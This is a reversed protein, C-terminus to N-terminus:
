CLSGSIQVTNGLNQEIKLVNRSTHRSGIVRKTKKDTCSFSFLSNKRPNFGFSDRKYDSATDTCWTGGIYTM